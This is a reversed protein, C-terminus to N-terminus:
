SSANVLCDSNADVAEAADATASKPRRDLGVTRDLPRPDVVEGVRLRERVEQTVVGNVPWERGLDRDSRAREDDVAHLNRDEVLLPGRRQRPCMEAGFHHDLAGPIEPSAAVGGLM